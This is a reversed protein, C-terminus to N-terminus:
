IPSNEIFYIYGIIALYFYVNFNHIYKLFLLGNLCLLIDLSIPNKSPLTYASMVVVENLYLFKKRFSGRNLHM